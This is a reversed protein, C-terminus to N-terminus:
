ITKRKNNHRNKSEHAEGYVMYKILTQSAMKGKNGNHSGNFPM